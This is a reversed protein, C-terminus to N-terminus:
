VIDSKPTLFFDKPNIVGGLPLNSFLRGSENALLDLKDPLREPYASRFRVEITSMIVMKTMKKIWNKEVVPSNVGGDGRVL